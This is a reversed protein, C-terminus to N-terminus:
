CVQKSIFSFAVEACPPEKYHGSNNAWNIRFLAKLNFNLHYLSHHVEKCRLKRGLLLVGNLSELAYNAQQVTEMTVFGYSLFKFAKVGQKIESKLVKGYDGFLENLHNELCIVSLDGVFVTSDLGM